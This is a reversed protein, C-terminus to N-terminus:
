YFLKELKSICVERAFHKKVYMFGREGYKVLDDKEEYLTKVVKLMGTYDDSVATYGCRAESVIKHGDSEKNLFGCVPISAAMYGLLKGPVVPTKNKASLCIIGVDADKVLLPYEEKPVLPKFVVNALGMDGAKKELRKRESGDGVLLFCIDDLQRLDKAIDLVLDLNQSVGMIGAFLFIFKDKLAYKDRFSGNRTVNVYPEIDIWNHLTHIKNQPVHKHKILFDMNSESHVTIDDAQSYARKEIFEFLKVVAPNKMVGLDVANQPFIDQVNLIFKVEYKKKVMEGVIALTLPPSYVIVLDPKRKLYLNIYRMFFVPLLVQSIGRLVFHGRHPAPTRARIVEIGSEVSFVKLHESTEKGNIKHEPNVTAVTVTYGRALLGEALEQMLHSSSRIEPPYASTVLLVNM